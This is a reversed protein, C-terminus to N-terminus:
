AKRALRSANEALFAKIADAHDFLREWQTAYLTVPWKGLGYVSCAGKESVKLGFPKGNEAKERLAKNEALLREVEARLDSDTSQRVPPKQMAQM